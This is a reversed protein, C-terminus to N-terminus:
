DRRGAGSEPDPVEPPLGLSPRFETV